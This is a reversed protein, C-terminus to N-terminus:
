DESNYSEPFYDDNYDFLLQKLKKNEKELASIRNAMDTMMEIMENYETKQM